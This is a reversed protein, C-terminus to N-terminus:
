AIGEAIPWSIIHIQWKLVLNRSFQNVRIISYLKFTMYDSQFYTINIFVIYFYFICICDNGSVYYNLSIIFKPIKESARQTNFVM